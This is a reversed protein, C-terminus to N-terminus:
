KSRKKENKKGKQKKKSRERQKTKNKHVGERVGCIRRNPADVQRLGKVISSNRDRETTTRTRSTTSILSCGLALCAVFIRTTEQRSEAPTPTSQRQVHIQIVSVCM